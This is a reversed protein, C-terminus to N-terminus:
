EETKELAEAAAPMKLSESMQRGTFAEAVEKPILGMLCLDTIVAEYVLENRQYGLQLNNLRPKRLAAM